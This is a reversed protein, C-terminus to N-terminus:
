VFIIVDEAFLSVTLDPFQFVLGTNTVYSDPGWSILCKTFDENWLYSRVQWNAANTKPPIFELQGFNHNYTRLNNLSDADFPTLYLPLIRNLYMM